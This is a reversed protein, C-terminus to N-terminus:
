AGALFAEHCQQCLWHEGNTYGFSEEPREPNYLMKWCVVCHDHKWGDKVLDFEQADYDGGLYLMVAGGARKVLADRPSSLRREWHFTGATVAHSKRVYGAGWLAGQARYGEGIGRPTGIVTIDRLGHWETAAPVEEAETRLQELSIGFRKLMDAAFCTEERLLGILLHECGIHRHSLRDAEEVTHHLVRKCDGSLPIDVSTWTKEGPVSRKAIEARVSEVADISISLRRGLERYERLVGLLLHESEIYSSGFLSAEYRAFFMARRAKDTYREFV